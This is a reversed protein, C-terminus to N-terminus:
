RQESLPLTKAKYLAAGVVGTVITSAIMEVVANLGVFACIFVLVNRGAMLSQVYETNGFLIVLASMFLLTNLFASAFGAIFVASEPAM